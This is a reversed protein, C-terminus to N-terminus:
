LVRLSSARMDSANRSRAGRLARSGGVDIISWLQGHESASGGTTALLLFPTLLAHSLDCAGTEMRLPHEEVGFTQIRAKLIDALLM